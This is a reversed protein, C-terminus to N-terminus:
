QQRIQQCFLFLSAIVCKLTELKKMHLIMLIQYTRINTYIKSIINLTGLFDVDCSIIRLVSSSGKILYNATGSAWDM